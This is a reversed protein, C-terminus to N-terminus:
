IRRRGRVSAERCEFRAGGRCCGAGGGRNVGVVRARARGRRGRRGGGRAGGGIGCGLALGSSRGCVRDKRADARADLAREAVRPWGNPRELRERLDICPRRREESGDGARGAGRRDIPAGLLARAEACRKCEERGSRPPRRQQRRV